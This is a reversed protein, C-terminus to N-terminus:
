LGHQEPPDIQSEDPAETQQSENISFDPQAQDCSTLNQPNEFEGGRGNGGNGYNVLRPANNCTEHREPLLREIADSVLNYGNPGGRHPIVIEHEVLIRQLEFFFKYSTAQTEFPAQENDRLAYYLQRVPFTGDHNNQGFDIVLKVWTELAQINPYTTEINRRDAFEILWQPFDREIAAQEQAHAKEKAAKEADWQRMQEAWMERRRQRRLEKRTEDLAQRTKEPDGLLKWIYKLYDQRAVYVKVQWLEEPTMRPAKYELRKFDSVSIEFAVILWAGFLFLALLGGLLILGWVM